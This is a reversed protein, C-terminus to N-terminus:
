DFRPKFVDISQRYKYSLRFDYFIVTVWGLAQLTDFIKFHQLFLLFSINEDSKPM